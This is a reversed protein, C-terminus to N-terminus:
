ECERHQSSVSGPDSVPKWMVLCPFCESRATVGCTGAGLASNGVRHAGDMVGLGDESAFEKMVDEVVCRGLAALRWLLMPDYKTLSFHHQRESHLAAVRDYDLSVVSPGM